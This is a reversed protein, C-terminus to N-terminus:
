GIGPYPVPPCEFLQADPVKDGLPRTLADPNDPGISTGATDVLVVLPFESNEAPSVRTLTSVGQVAVNHGLDTGLVTYLYHSTPDGSVVEVQPTVDYKNATGTSLKISLGTCKLVVHAATNFGGTSPSPTQNPSIQNISGSNPSGVAVGHDGSAGPSLAESHSPRLLLFGGTAALSMTLMGAILNRPRTLYKQWNKPEGGGILTEVASHTTVEAM